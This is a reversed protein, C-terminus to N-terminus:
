YDYDQFTNDVNFNRRECDNNAPYLRRRGRNGQRHRGCSVFVFDKLNLENLLQSTQDLM